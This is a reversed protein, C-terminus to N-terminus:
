ASPTVALHFTWSMRPKTDAPGPSQGPALVDVVVRLPFVVTDADFVYENTADQYARYLMVRYVTRGKVDAAAPVAQTWAYIVKDRDAEEASLAEPPYAFYMPRGSAAPDTGSPVALLEGRPLRKLEGSVMGSAAVVGDRDALRRVGDMSTGFLGLMAVIAFAFIGIALVVEVLSFGPARRARLQIAPASM